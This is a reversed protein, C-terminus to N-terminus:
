ESPHGTYHNVIRSAWGLMERAVLTILAWEAEGYDVSTM